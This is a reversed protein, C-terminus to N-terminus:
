NTIPQESQSESHHKRIEMVRNVLATLHPPKQSQLYEKIDEIDMDTPLTRALRKWDKCCRAYLCGTPELNLLDTRVLRRELAGFKDQMSLRVVHAVYFYLYDRVSNDVIDQISDDLNHLAGELREILASLKKTSFTEDTTQGCTMNLIAGVRKLIKEGPRLDPKETVTFGRMVHLVRQHMQRSIINHMQACVSVMLLCALADEHGPREAKTLMNRLTLYIDCLLAKHTQHFRLQLGNTVGGGNAYLGLFAPLHLGMLPLLYDQEYRMSATPYQRVVSDIENLLKKFQQKYLGQRECKLKARTLYVDMVGGLAIGCLTEHIQIVLMEKRAEMYRLITADAEAGSRFTRGKFQIILDRELKKNIPAHRDLSTPGPEKGGLPQWQSLKQSPPTQPATTVIKSLYHQTLM